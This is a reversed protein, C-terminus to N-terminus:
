RRNIAGILFGIGAAVALALLPRHVVEDEVRHWATRSVRTAEDGVQRASTGFSALTESIREPVSHSAERASASAFAALQALPGSLDRLIRGIDDVDPLGASGSRSLSRGM